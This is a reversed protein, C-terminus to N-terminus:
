AFSIPDEFCFPFPSGLSYVARSFEVEKWGDKSDLLFSASLLSPVQIGKNHSTYFSMMLGRCLTYYIFWHFNWEAWYIRLHCLYQAWSAKCFWAPRQTNKTKQTTKKKKWIDLFSNAKLFNLVKARWIKELMKQPIISLIEIYKFHVHNQYIYVGHFSEWRQYMWWKVQKRNKPSFM